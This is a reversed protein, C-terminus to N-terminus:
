KHFLKQGVIEALFQSGIHTVWYGLGREHPLALEPKAGVAAKEEPKEKEREGKEPKGGPPPTIAVAVEPRRRAFTVTQWFSRALDAADDRFNFGALFPTAFLSLVGGIFWWWTRPYRPKLPAPAPEVTTVSVPRRFARELYSVKGGKALFRGTEAVGGAVDSAVQGVLSAEVKEGDPGVSPLGQLFFTIICLAGVWFAAFTPLGSEPRWFLMLKKATWPGYYYFSKRTAPHHPVVALAVTLVWWLATGIGLYEWPVARYQGESAAMLKVSFLCAFSFPVLAYIFKGLRETVLYPRMAHVVKAGLVLAVVLMWFMFWFM